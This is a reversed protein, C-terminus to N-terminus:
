NDEDKAPQEETKEDSKISESQKEPIPKLPEDDNQVDNQEELKCLRKHLLYIAYVSFFIHLAFTIYILEKNLNM